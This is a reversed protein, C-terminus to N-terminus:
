NASSGVFELIACRKANGYASRGLDSGRQLLDYGQNLYNVSSEIDRKM